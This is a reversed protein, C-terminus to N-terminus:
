IEFRGIGMAPDSISHKETEVRGAFRHLFGNGSQISFDYWNGSNALLWQIRRTKGPALEFAAPVNYGYANSVMSVPIAVSHPNHLSVAIGGKRHNYKLKIEPEAATINGSFKHFYGNTGYVELDYAANDEAVNWEDTLSKGAEVTYRRPIRDLHKLDYVHYVAGAKGDNEFLLRIKQEQQLLQLHTYLRYPLARSYRTGKEQYLPSPTEPAVAKPLLKSAEDLAAHNATEPMPPFVPDNPTEFDFASLLDSCVARHWPSIAPITVGFRKEIFQGVSTHDAVQSDVWGGKSWPSIIYLPVRPGLGWPRINGSITDRKDQYTRTRVPGGKSMESAFYPNPFESTGKDNHFYMGALDLTSKGAMTSDANYSPVAPAPLHDFLGDNEDFTLFFVTKSWVEPNATLASLIAHTFDAGRYPSSPAGPHESDIQAPLVWSVQPLTNNKVDEALKQITWHRMGKEYIASGPKASRFSEFALCGHMAGSWNDNPNQYIRWSIGAKELVDPITSWQFANGRYTYGPDPMKNNVWCRLNVPESDEDTCNIGAARKDPNFNSGSWFVIRNPDTGTAVSCHHADCITFSEALAYQFPIEERTYYAMSYPTKFLPWHGYKGQNWAAQMDPFDHPTGNILAANSKKKSAHYPPIIKKGNSQFFAREGSELPIPFRDGFGRVGKMTGFYHDFSRNEQMLIVIHQVDRISRSANHAEVALVKQLWTSWVAATGATASMKIFKRRNLNPM